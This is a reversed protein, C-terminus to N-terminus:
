ERKKLFVNLWLEECNPKITKTIVTEMIAFGECIVDRIAKETFDSYQRGDRLGDFDGYKFSAYLVGGEKLAEHLVAFAKKVELKRLHLLSACAWIGDFEEHLALNLVDVKRADIGLLIAHDVFEQCTDIAVVEHREKFHLSDRGSGCGVDLIKAHAPLHKEFMKYIGSMDLNLTSQIYGEAHEKYYRETEKVM